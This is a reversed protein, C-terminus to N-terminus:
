LLHDLGSVMFYTSLQEAKEQYRMMRQIVCEVFLKKFIISAVYLISSYMEKRGGRALVLILINRTSVLSKICKKEGLLFFCKHFILFSNISYKNVRFFVKINPYTIEIKGEERFIFSPPSSSDSFETLSNRGPLSLSLKSSISLCLLSSSFLFASSSALRRMSSSFLANASALFFM